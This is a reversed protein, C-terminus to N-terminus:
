TTIGLPKKGAAPCRCQDDAQGLRRLIDGELGHGLALLRQEVGDHPIRGDGRDARRDAGAAAVGRDVVAADEDRELGCILAVGTSWTIARSRM